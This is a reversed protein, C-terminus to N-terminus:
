NRIELKQTKKAFLKLFEFLTFDSFHDLTGLTISQAFRAIMKIMFISFASPM